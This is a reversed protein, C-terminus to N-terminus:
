YFCSFVICTCTCICTNQLVKISYHDEIQKFVSTSGPTYNVYTSACYTVIIISCCPTLVAQLKHSFCGYMCIELNCVGDELVGVHHMNIINSYSVGVTVPRYYRNAAIPNFFQILKSRLSRWLLFLFSQKQVRILM